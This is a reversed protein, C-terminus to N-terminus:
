LSENLIKSLRIGAWVLRKNLINVFDYHYKFEKYKGQYKENKVLEYLSDRLDVSEYVWDIVDGKLIEASNIEGKKYIFRVYETYSLKNMELMEKDWVAHLNTNQQYWLVSIDNGGRDHAYGCHLPQHLDGIFHVLFGLAELRQNKNKKKNNLINRFIDIAWILDGKLLKTDPKIQKQIEVYSLSPYQAFYKEYTEVSKLKQYNKEMLNIYHWNEQPSALENVSKIEDPWNSVEELSKDGMLEKLKQKSGLTLHFSAIQAVIRHGNKDFAYASDDGWGLFVIVMGFILCLKSM